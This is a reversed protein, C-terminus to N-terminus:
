RLGALAGERGFRLSPWVLGCIPPPPRSSSSMAKESNFPFPPSSCPRSCLELSSRAPWGPCLRSPRWFARKSLALSGPTHHTSPSPERLHRIVPRSARWVVFKNRVCGPWRAALRPRPAPAREPGKGRQRQCRGGPGRGAERPGRGGSGGALTQTTGPRPESDGRRGRAHARRVPGPGAPRGLCGRLVGGAPDLSSPRGAELGLWGREAALIM